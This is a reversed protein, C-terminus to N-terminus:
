PYPFDHRQATPRKHPAAPMRTPAYPLLMSPATRLQGASRIRQSNPTSRPYAKLSTAGMDAWCAVQRRADDADKLGYMQLFGNPGNLYPATADIDPGPLRGAEIEGKLKFDMLGNVNGGTRM